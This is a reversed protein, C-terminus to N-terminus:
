SRGETTVRRAKCYLDTLYKLQKDSITFRAGYRGLNENLDRVFKRSNKAFVDGHMMCFFVMDRVDVLDDRPPEPEPTPPPLAPHTLAHEALDAFAHADSGAGVLTRNIARCASVVEGAKDSRLALRILQGVRIAASSEFTIQKM